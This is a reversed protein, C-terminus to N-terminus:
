ADNGPTAVRSSAMGTAEPNTRMPAERTTNAARDKQVEGIRRGKNPCTRKARYRLHATVSHIMRSALPKSLSQASFRQSKVRSVADQSQCRSNATTVPPEFPM